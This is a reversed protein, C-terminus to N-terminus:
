VQSLVTQNTRPLAGQLRGLEARIREAVLGHKHLGGCGDESLARRDQSEFRPSLASKLSCRVGFLKVKRSRSSTLASLKYPGLCSM